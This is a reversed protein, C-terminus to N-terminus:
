TLSSLSSGPLSRPPCDVARRCRVSCAPILIFFSCPLGRSHISVFREFARIEFAAASAPEHSASINLVSGDTKAISLARAVRFAHVRCLIKERKAGALRTGRGHAQVTPRLEVRACYKNAMWFDLSAVPGSDPPRYISIRIMVHHSLVCSCARHRREQDVRMLNDAGLPSSSM